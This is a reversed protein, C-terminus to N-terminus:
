NQGEQSVQYTTLVAAHDSTWENDQQSGKPKPSGVVLVESDIVKVDGKHYIFDIRDQPEPDGTAGSHFPNLPSWTIGPVAAPDPHAVRFSDILGAQAPKLSSPWPVGAYGCNKTRLSETWDLHSPANTDGVMIVPIKSTAANTLQGSMAKLINTIQGTRGSQAERQLVQDVSMKSYCFDYPGYPDYGLHIGWFNIQQENGDLAIRVGTGSGDIEDYRQVIPYRSIIGVNGTSPQWYDWGLTNALWKANGDIEQFGIVDVNSNIIFRTQKNHYDKVNVGGNWLNFSMVRIQHVLDIGARRVPITVKIDSTAGDSSRARVTYVADTQGAGAGPTGSFVGDRSLSAWNNWGETGSIISFTADYGSNVLGSIRASYKDSVRANRLTISSTVFLFPQPPNGKFNVPVPKAISQYGDNALFYALYSGVPLGDASLEVTGQADSVYSWTLAHLAPKQGNEPGNAIPYIGVWNKSAPNSTSYAFTLTEGSVLSLSNGAAPAAQVITPLLLFSSLAASFISSFLM